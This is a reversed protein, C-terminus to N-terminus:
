QTEVNGEGDAISNVFDVLRSVIFYRKKGVRYEAGSERAYYEATVRGCSFLQMVGRFDVVIPTTVGEKVREM